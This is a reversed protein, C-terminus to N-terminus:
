FTLVKDSEVTWQTLESMTSMEVGEVLGLTKIGRADACTGCAKVHGGKSIVSRLMRENNYYGQPTTQNPLVCTVADAMLFVQVEVEVHEKQLMMAMRLANYAKESGYPADNIIFLTKM